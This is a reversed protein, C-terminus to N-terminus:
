GLGLHLSLRLGLSLGLCLDLEEIWGYFFGPYCCRVTVEGFSLFSM